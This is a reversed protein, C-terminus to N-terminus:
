IISRLAEDPNSEVNVSKLGEATAAELLRRDAGLFLDASAEKSSAIQLADAVYIHHKPVV